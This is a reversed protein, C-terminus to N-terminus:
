ESALVDKRRKARMRTIEEAILSAAEEAEMNANDQAQHLLSLAQIRQGQWQEYVRAPVVAVVTEGSREILYSNKHEAVERLIEDFQQSAEYVTTRKEM